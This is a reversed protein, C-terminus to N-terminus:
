MILQVLMIFTAIAQGQNLYNFKDSDQFGDSVGMGYHITDYSLGNAGNVLSDANSIATGAYTTSSNWAVPKGGTGDQTDGVIYEPQIAGTLSDFLPQMTSFNNNSTQIVPANGISGIQTNGAPLTLAQAVTSILSPNVTAVIGTGGALALLVASRTLWRKGVKRTSFHTVKTNKALAQTLRQIAHKHKKM